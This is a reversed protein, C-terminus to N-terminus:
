SNHCIVDKAAGSGGQAAPAAEPKGTGSKQQKGKKDGKGKGKGGKGGNNQWLGRTDMPDDAAPVGAAAEPAPLSAGINTELLM